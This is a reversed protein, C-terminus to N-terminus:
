RWRISRSRIMAFTPGHYEMRPLEETIEFGDPEVYSSRLVSQEAKYIETRETTVESARLWENFAVYWEREFSALIELAKKKRGDTLWDGMWGPLSINASLKGESDTHLQKLVGNMAQIELTYLPWTRIVDEAAFSVRTSGFAGGGGARRYLYVALDDKQMYGKRVFFRTYKEEDFKRQENMIKWLRAIQSAFHQGPIEPSGEHSGTGFLASPDDISTPSSPPVSPSSM